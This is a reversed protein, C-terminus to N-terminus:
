SAAKAIERITSYPYIGSSHGDNWAIGLAYNGLATIDTAAIDASIDKDRSIQKGTMEDVCVACRCSMRLDRNCVVLRTGDSWDLSITQADFHIQPVGTEAISKKGLAMVVRDVAQKILDDGVSRDMAHTFKESLPLEALTEIGFRQELSKRSSEGFIYHRKACNDCVFYAMNEIVGLIPVNVKEFMLIGRAVDILSLTQPTTVIVAGSLRLTQTITLQVDGTGPPMDIFLYDLKGWDTNHLVQQVYQSVMPGRMVAPADGLLFGFSMIKLNNKVVPVIQKRETAYITVRPLNFLSPVSPGHIDADVLGVAFGRRALEVALHAAITSKGVGGKCSSVAIISDVQDLTSQRQGVAASARRSPATMEVRVDTVGRIKKVAAEAQRKFENKVPCAPTTLQIELAVRGDSIQIDRVFGLSVIDKQFDPDIIDKLADLIEKESIV